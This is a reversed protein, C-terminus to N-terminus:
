LGLVAWRPRQEVRRTSRGLTRGLILPLRRLGLLDDIWRIRLRVNRHGDPLRIVHFKRGLLLLLLLRTAGLLSRFQNLRCKGSSWGPRGSVHVVNRQVLLANRLLRRLIRTRWRLQLGDRDLLDRLILVHPM